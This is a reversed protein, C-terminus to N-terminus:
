VEGLELGAMCNVDCRIKEDIFNHLEDYFRDWQHVTASRTGDNNLVFGEADRIKYFTGLPGIPYGHAKGNLAGVTNVPGDGRRFVKVDLGAAALEGTHYLWNTYGQDSEVGGPYAKKHMDLDRLNQDSFRNTTWRRHCQLSDVESLLRQEFREVGARTGLISGSCIVSQNFVRNREAVGMCDKIWGGNYVCKGITKFPYHEAFLYLDQLHSTSRSSGQYLEAFPHGQFVQPLDCFM